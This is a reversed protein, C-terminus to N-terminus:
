DIVPVYYPDQFIYRRKAQGVASKYDRWARSTSGKRRYESWLFDLERTYSEWALMRGEDEARREFRRVVPQGSHGPQTHEVAPENPPVALVATLLMSATIM